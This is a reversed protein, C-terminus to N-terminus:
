PACAVPVHLAINAQGGPAAALYGTELVVVAGCGPIPTVDADAAMAPSALALSVVSVSLIGRRLMHAEKSQNRLTRINM